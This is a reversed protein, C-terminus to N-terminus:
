MINYLDPLYLLILKEIDWVINIPTNCYWIFMPMEEWASMTIIKLYNYVQILFDSQAIQLKFFICVGLSSKTGSNGNPHIIICQNLLLKICVSIYTSNIYRYQSSISWIVHCNCRTCLVKSSRLSLQLFSFLKQVSMHWLTMTNAYSLVSIIYLRM